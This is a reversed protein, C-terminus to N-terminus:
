GYLVKLFTIFLPIQYTRVHKVKTVLPLNLGPQLLVLRIDYDADMGEHLVNRQPHEFPLAKLIPNNEDSDNRIEICAMGCPIRNTREPFNPKQYFLLENM